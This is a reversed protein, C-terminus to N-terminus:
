GRIAHALVSVRAPLPCANVGAGMEFRELVDTIRQQVTRPPM